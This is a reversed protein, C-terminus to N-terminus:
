YKDKNLAIIEAQFSELAKWPSDCTDICNRQRKKEMIIAKAKM